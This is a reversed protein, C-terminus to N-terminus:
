KGDHHEEVIVLRGGVAQELDTRAIWYDRLAEIYDRQATIQNQRAQILQYVGLLMFNYHQQSLAVIGEQLPLINAKSYEVIERAAVLRDYALRVQSRVDAELSALRRESQRLLSQARGTTGQKRDFVPLEFALIPGTVRTGDVDKETDVGINLGTSYRGYKTLTLSRTARQTEQKAATLDLRQALAVSTLEEFKPDSKPLEPLAETIEWHGKDGWLGMLRNLRERDALLASNARKLDLNAQHYIGKQMALDLAGINGAKQQREALDTAVETAEFVAKRLTLMEQGAQLTFYAERVAMALNLVEEGSRLKAQEFGAAAVNRRLPRFLIDLFNESISFETNTLGSRNPFRVSASLIPNQLLGNQVLDAQAIGFSEFTAQLSPNNLLAIQVSDDASLKHQLMEEITKTVAADERTGQNWHVHQALRQGVIQDVDDFGKRSTATAPGSVNLAIVLVLGFRYTM